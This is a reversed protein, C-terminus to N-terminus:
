PLSQIQSAVKALHHNSCWQIWQEAQGNNPSGPKTATLALEQDGQSFSAGSFEPKTILDACILKLAGNTKPGKRVLVTQSDSYRINPDPRNPVSVPAGGCRIGYDGFSPLRLKKAFRDARIHLWGLWDIRPISLWTGHELTSISAPFCGSALTLTRWQTAFPLASLASEGLQQIEIQQPRYKLDILIDVRDPKLNLVQLLATLYGTLLQPSIFNEISLRIMVGRGDQAVINAIEQQYAPSHTISTVPVAALQLSRAVEFITKLSAPSPIGGLPVHCTDLFFPLLSWDDKVPQLLDLAHKVLSKPPKAAVKPKGPIQKPARPIEVPGIEFLPTVRSKAAVSLHNLAWLEGRKLRTIFIHHKDSFTGGSHPVPILAREARAAKQTIKVPSKKTDSTKKSSLM